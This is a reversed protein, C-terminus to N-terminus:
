AAMAGGVQGVKPQGGGSGDCYIDDGGDWQYQQNNHIGMTMKDNNTTIEDGM